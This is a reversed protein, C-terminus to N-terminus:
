VKDMFNERTIEMPAGDASNQTVDIWCEYMGFPEILDTYRSFIARTLKSYKLYQDYQPPVLILDRCKQRAEWNVM